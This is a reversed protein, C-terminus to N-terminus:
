DHIQHSRLSVTLGKPDTQLARRTEGTLVAVVEKIGIGGM